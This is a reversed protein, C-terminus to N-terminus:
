VLEGTMTLSPHQRSKLRLVGAAEGDQLFSEESSVGM